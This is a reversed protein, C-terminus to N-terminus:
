TEQPLPGIQLSRTAWDDAVQSHATNKTHVDSKQEPRLTYRERQLNTHGHVARTHHLRLVAACWPFFM